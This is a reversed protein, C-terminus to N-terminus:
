FPWREHDFTTRRTQLAAVRGDGSLRFSSVKTKILTCLKFKIATLAARFTRPCQDARDPPAAGPDATITATPTAERVLQSSRTTDTEHAQRLNLSWAPM